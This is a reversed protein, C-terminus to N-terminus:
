EELIVFKGPELYPAGEVVEIVLDQKVKYIKGSDRQYFEKTAKEEFDISADTNKYRFYLTDNKIRYNFNHEMPGGFFSVIFDEGKEHFLISSTDYPCNQCDKFTFSKGQFFNDESYTLYEDKTAKKNVSKVTNNVPKSNSSSQEQLIKDEVNSPTENKCAFNFLLLCCFIVKYVLNM